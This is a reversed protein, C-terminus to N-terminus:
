FSAVVRPNKGGKKLCDEKAREHNQYPHNFSWGVITGAGNDSIAIAGHARRFTGGRFSNHAGYRLNSRQSWVIAPDTGGKAKCEAIAQESVANFEGYSVYVMAWKGNSAVALVQTATLKQTLVSSLGFVILALLLKPRMSKTQYGM